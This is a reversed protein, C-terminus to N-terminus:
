AGQPNRPRAEQQLFRLVIRATGMVFIGSTLPFSIGAFSKLSSVHSRTPPGASQNNMGASM